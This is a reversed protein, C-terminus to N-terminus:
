REIIEYDKNIEIIEKDEENDDENDHENDDENDDEYDEYHEYGEYDQYYDNRYKNEDYEDELEYVEDYRLFPKNEFKNPITKLSIAQFFHYCCYKLHLCYIKFYM